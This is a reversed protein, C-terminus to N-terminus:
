VQEVYLGVLASLDHYVPQGTSRTCRYIVDNQIYYLGETLEMNNNYPIPNDVTGEETENIESFLSETGTDGPLYTDVFTYTPQETRWLLENYRFKFGQNVEIGILDEFRPYFPIVQIATKDDLSQVAQEVVGRLRKAERRTM